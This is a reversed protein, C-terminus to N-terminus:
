AEELRGLFRESYGEKRLKAYDVRGQKKRVKQKIAKLLQGTAQDLLEAESKEHKAVDVKV